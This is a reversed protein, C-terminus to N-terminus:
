RRKSKRLMLGGSILRYVGYLMPGWAVIYVGGFESASAQGYTYGTIVLGALLWLAGFALGRVGKKEWIARQEDTVAAYPPPAGAGAAYPPPEGPGGPQPWSQAAPGAPPTAAADPREYGPTETM